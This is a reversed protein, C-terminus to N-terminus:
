LPPLFICHYFTEKALPMLFAPCSCIFWSCLREGYMFIFEFNSLLVHYCLSRSSIMPQVNQCLNYWHKRLNIEWPLIFLLM